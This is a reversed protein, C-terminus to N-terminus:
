WWVSCGKEGKDYEQNASGGVGGGGGGGGTVSVL